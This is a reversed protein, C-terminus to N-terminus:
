APALTFRARRQAGLHCTVNGASGLLAKRVGQLFGSLIHAVAELQAGQWQDSLVVELELQDLDLKGARAVDEREWFAAVATVVERLSRAPIAQASAEGLAQGQRLLAEPSSADGGSALVSVVSPLALTFASPAPTAYQKVAGRLQELPIHSAGIRRGKLRYVKRRSDTPHPLEEILDQQLLERMHLNSLTPKAKGTIRVLDPLEKEGEGLAELIQRRVPNTVAVFGSEGQYIDFDNEGPM